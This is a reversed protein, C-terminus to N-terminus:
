SPKRFRGRGIEYLDNGYIDNIVFLPMDEVQLEYIAEPGLDDFAVVRSSLVHKSMLAGVGGLAGFYVAKYKKCAEVVDKSRKGKGVMGKLGLSLLRPTYEDMRSSTTPGCSGIVKGPPPPTPGCYYIVQGSLEIPLMEGRSLLEIMRRHASDRATFIKGTLLVREGARLDELVKDTLPTEIRKAM